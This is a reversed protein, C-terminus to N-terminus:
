SDGDDHRVASTPTPAPSRMRDAADEDAADAGAASHAGDSDAFGAQGRPRGSWSRPDTRGHRYSRRSM